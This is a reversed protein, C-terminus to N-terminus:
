GQHPFSITNICDESITITYVNIFLTRKYTTVSAEQTRGGRLLPCLLFNVSSHLTVGPGTVVFTSRM